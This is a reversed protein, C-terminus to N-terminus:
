FCQVGFVLGTIHFVNDGVDQCDEEGELLDVVPCRDENLLGPQLLSHSRDLQLIIKPSRRFLTSM